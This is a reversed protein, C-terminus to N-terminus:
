TDASAIVASVTAARKASILSRVPSTTGSVPPACPAMASPPRPQDLLAIEVSGDRDTDKIGSGALPQHHKRTIQVAAHRPRVLFLEPQQGTEVVDEDANSDPEYQKCQATQRATQPSDRDSRCAPSQGFIEGALSALRLGADHQQKSEDTGHETEAQPQLNAQAAFGAQVRQGTKRNAVRIGIDRAEQKAAGQRRDRRCCM